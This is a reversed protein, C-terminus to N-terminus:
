VNDGSTLFHGGIVLHCLCNLHEATIFLIVILKVGPDNFAIALDDM